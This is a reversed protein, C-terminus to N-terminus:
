KGMPLHLFIQNQQRTLNQRKQYWRTLTNMPEGVTQMAQAFASSM